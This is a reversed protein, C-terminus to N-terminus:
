PDCHENEIGRALERDVDHRDAGLRRQKIKETGGGCPKAAVIERKAMVNIEQYRRPLPDPEVIVRFAPRPAEVFLTETGYIGNMTRTLSGARSKEPLLRRAPRGDPGAVVQHKGLRAPVPKVVPEGNRGMERTLCM